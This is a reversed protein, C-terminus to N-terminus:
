QKTLRIRDYGYGLCCICLSTNMDSCNSTNNQALGVDSHDLRPVNKQELTPNNWLRVMPLMKSLNYCIIINLRDVNNVKCMHIFIQM